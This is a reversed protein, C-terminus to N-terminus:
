CAMRSFWFLTYTVRIGRLKWHTLPFPQTLWFMTYEVTGKGCWNTGPMRMMTTVSSPERKTRGSRPHTGIMSESHFFTFIVSHPELYKM